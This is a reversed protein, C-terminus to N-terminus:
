KEATPDIVGVEFEKNMQKYLPTPTVTVFVELTPGIVMQLLHGGHVSGDAIAFNVHSHAVPKGNMLAIDGVLSTVEVPENFPIVKFMKKSYDYFGVRASLADGIATYHASKVNYQQAFTTLGSVVEDGKSFIIVFTRTDGEAGVQKVKMGPAKGIEAPKTPSVYEQAQATFAAFTLALLIAKM